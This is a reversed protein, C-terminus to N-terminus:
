LVTRASPVYRRNWRPISPSRTAPLEGRRIGREKEEGGDRRRPVREEEKEKEM